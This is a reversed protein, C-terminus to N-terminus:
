KLAPTHRYRDHLRPPPPPHLSESCRRKGCRFNGPHHESTGFLQDQVADMIKAKEASSADKSTSHKKTVDRESYHFFDCSPRDVFRVPAPAPAPAAAPASTKSDFAPQARGGSTAQPGPPPPPPPAEAVSLQDDDGPPEPGGGDPTEELVPLPTAMRNLFLTTQFRNVRDATEAMPLALGFM